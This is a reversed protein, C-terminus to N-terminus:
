SCCHAAIYMVYAQSYFVVAQCASHKAWALPTISAMIVVSKLYLLPITLITLSMANDLLFSETTIFWLFIGHVIDNYTRFLVIQIIYFYDYNHIYDNCTIEKYYM